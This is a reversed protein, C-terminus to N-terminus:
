MSTPVNVQLRQRSVSPTPDGQASCELRVPQGIRVTYPSSGPRITTVPLSQIELVATSTVSGADNETSCMYTGEEDGRVQNFRPLYFKMYHM